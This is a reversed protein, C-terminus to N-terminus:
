EGEVLSSLEEWKEYLTNLKDKLNIINKSVEASKQPNSYVEELCMQNELGSIEKEVNEIEKEVSKLDKELQKKKEQVDRLKRREEKIETKTKGATNIIIEDEPANRKNQYYEFNGLYETIGTADLEFIRQIVKNLFYRDHSIVFLTGEYDMLADELAERSLMDLHNTPEDLLLFNSKSLMLKLLSLRCKEGGSLSFIQKFVDDGTFLFSGLYTRVQTVTFDPYEDWLEDLVTKDSSLDKQEQDYYGVFVNRGLRAQGYDPDHEGCIIKFLTTKGKGNEGILAVREGRRILFNLDKFLLNDGFAKSLEEVILVDNGSKIKADFSIRASKNDVSPRDVREIKALAKERSAAQRNSKERTNARFKQIIDELRELEKQQTEYEKMRLEYRKHRESIFFSYNGGYEEIIGQTLELTKNTVVDLFYRDHSIVIITGKYDKLFNELFNIASLDLHNTPEDLLLIDPNTLLLKALAVRTKQGGSLLMIRKDFDNPTIGLGILIGRAFSECGYGNQREYEEQIHGYEKLLREHESSDYDMEPHSILTEIERLRSEMDKIHKYVKMTEDFVTNDVDLDLNQSLYGIKKDAPIYIEGTDSAIEGCLIKFLTTKGAGNVGVLGVKEYENIAFTIDKLIVTTGYAKSIGNLALITM